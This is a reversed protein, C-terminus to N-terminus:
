LENGDTSVKRETYWSGYTITYNNRISENFMLQTDTNSILVPVYLYLSNITVNIDNAISTFKINQLDATRFTSHLGLKKTINKFTKCFGFIHELPLQGRIKEGIIPEDHSNILRYNLSNNNMSTNTDTGNINDFNSLLDGDRNSLSRMFTSVQGLFKAHEEEMGGTTEITAQDFCFAFGNNVM